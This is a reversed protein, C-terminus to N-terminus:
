KKASWTSALNCIASSLFIPDAQRLYFINSDTLVTEKFDNSDIYIINDQNIRSLAVCLSTMLNLSQSNIVIKLGESTNEPLNEILLEMEPSDAAIMEVIGSTSTEGLPSYKIRLAVEKMLAQQLKKAYEKDPENYILIFHKVLNLIM